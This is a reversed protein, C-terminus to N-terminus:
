RFIVSGSVKDSDWSVAVIGKRELALRVSDAHGRDTKEPHGGVRNLVDVLMQAEDTSLELVFKEPEVVVTKASVKTAKAM